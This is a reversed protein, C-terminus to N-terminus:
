KLIEKLLKMADQKLQCVRPQSINLRYAIESETKPDTTLYMARIIDRLRPRLSAVASEVRDLHDNDVAQEHTMIEDWDGDFGFTGNTKAQERWLNKYANEIAAKAFVSFNVPSKSDYSQAAKVLALYAVSQMEEYEVNGFGSRYAKAAISNALPIYQETLSTHRHKPLYGESKEKIAGKGVKLRSVPGQKPLIQPTKCTIWMMPESSNFDDAKAYVTGYTKHTLTLLKTDM